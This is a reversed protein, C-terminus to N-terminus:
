RYGKEKEYLTITKINELETKNLVSESFDNPEIYGDYWPQKDFYKQLEDDKFKRGHRAYIENRAIRCEEETFGVLESISITRRSSDPLIYNEENSGDENDAEELGENTFDNLEDAEDNELDDSIDPKDSIDRFVKGESEAEEKGNDTLEGDMRSKNAPYTEEEAFFDEKVVKSENDIEERVEARLLDDDGKKLFIVLYVALVIFIVSLIAIVALLLINTKNVPERKETENNKTDVPKYLDPTKQVLMSEHFEDQKPHEGPKSLDDNEPFVNKNEIDDLTKNNTTSRDILHDIDDNGKGSNMEPHLSKGCFKCFNMNEDNEKGCFYCYM